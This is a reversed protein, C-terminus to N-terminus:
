IRDLYVLEKFKIAFETGHNIDMNLTGDLQNVLNEVLQLGFTQPSDPKINKCMGIGNDSVKLFLEDNNKKFEVTVTGKRGDPFAYKISNSVLENIILGCPIATDIGMDLDVTKIVPEITGVKVKYSYFLDTVLKEIYYKFNIHTLDPSEYLKEHLTAMSKVRNHSEALIDLASEDEVHQMQLNLLSVIIQLNNKVRHHIERLLLEKEKLSSKVEDEAIKRDTIDMGIGAIRYLEGKDNLVPFARGWIWRITGDPQIIRFEVGPDDESIVKDEATLIHTIAKKRDEPYITKIWSKPEKYLEKTSRGWIKEYSPSVYLIESMKPDIIYMLEEINEAMQRFKEESETLAKQTKVLDTIDIVSTVFEDSNPIKDVTIQTTLIEGSKTTFETEYTSPATEPDIERQKHYEMMMPFKDSPVFEMWNMKNVVEEKSYGFIRELETNIMTIIGQKNFILTAAGTNEFITRYLSESRKLAIEVKKRKSINRTSGQLGVPNGEDDYTWKAYIEIDIVSGDKRYMELEMYESTAREYVPKGLQDLLEKMVKPYYDELVYDSLHLNLAEEPTYGSLEEIGPTIFTFYGNLSMKWIVDSSNEVLLRYKEESERLSREIQKLDTIDVMIGVIGVLEGENNSYTAKNFLVDHTTGDSHDMKWHLFQKGPNKLLEMDMKHYEDALDKSFIDHVSKGIIENKTLGLFEAYEKNCGIYVGNIDKYFISSPMKDTLTGFFEAMDKTEIETTKAETIDQAVGYIHRVGQNEDEVSYIYNKLWIIKDDSGMIRFEVVDKSGPKPLQLQREVNLQDEPHIVRWFENRNIHDKTYGTLDFFSDSLHELKCNIYSEKEQPFDCICSYSFDSILELLIQNHKFEKIINHDFHVNKVM